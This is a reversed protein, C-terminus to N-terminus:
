LEFLEKLSEEYNALLDDIEDRQLLLKVNIDHITKRTKTYIKDIEPAAESPKKSISMNNLAVTHLHETDKLIGTLRLLQYKLSKEELEIEKVRLDLHEASLHLNKKIESIRETRMDKENDEIQEYTYLAETEYTSINEYLNTIDTAVYTIGLYIDLEEISVHNTRHAIKLLSREDRDGTEEIDDIDDDIDNDIHISDEINEPSPDKINTPSPDVIKKVAASTDDFVLEVSEGKKPKDVKYHKYKLKKDDVKTTALTSSGKVVGKPSTLDTSNVDSEIDARPSLKIGKKDAIIGLDKELLAIDDILEVSQSEDGLLTDNKSSLHSALFYSITEGSFKSYCIGESSLIALDSEVLPGRINILYSVSKDTLSFANGEESVDGSSLVIEKLKPRAGEPIIMYYQASVYIIVSKQTKPLRIEFFIAHNISEVITHYITSCIYSHQSLIKLFKDYSLKTAM